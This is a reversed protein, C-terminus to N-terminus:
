FNFKSTSSMPKQETQVPANTKPDESSNNSVVMGILVLVVIVVSAGWKLIKWFDM